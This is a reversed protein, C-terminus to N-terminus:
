GQDSSSQQEFEEYARAWEELQTPELLDMTEQFVLLGTREYAYIYAPDANNERMAQIMKDRTEQEHKVLQQQFKERVLAEIQKEDPTDNSM